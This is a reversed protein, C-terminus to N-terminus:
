DDSLRRPPDADANERDGDDSLVTRVYGAFGPLTFRLLGHGAAEIVGKDLLRDRPVSIERSSRGMGAAVDSRPVDESGARAMAAMLQQELPSAARWRARYMATLQDRAAPLAAEVDAATISGGADPRAHDWAAHALLQLFYPYGRAEAEVAALAEETWTVQLEVAPATVAKAAAAADLLSLPVFASREGFTAAKTLEEPTSPLGAGMVALPNEARAGDLNQVANLLVATDNRTAAHLEDLFLVFGAGGRERCRTAADHLLDELAAIPAGTPQDGDETRALEASVKAGPPGVQLALKDLRGHWRARERAPVVEARELAHGVRNVVEPLFAQRRACSVWATVFGHEVADRQGERLLSTKGVGRPAHFVLLPGGLEGYTAVRSLYGRIRETEADRGALIRPLQGPTYPNPQVM